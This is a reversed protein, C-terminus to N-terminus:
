PAATVALESLIILTGNFAAHLGIPAWISGRRVFLWGLALAVPLRSGFGVVALAVGESFSNATIGIVHVVAFFLAARVIGARAGATRTWATTAVGRFLVEEGLPAVIAGAILHLVLGSAEGTPPLPGEPAAGLLTVLLATLLLSVLIVPGAFVAGWVMDAAIGTPRFGMERWTLAGTGVVLLAVLAIVAGNQITVLLLDAVPRVADIGAAALPLGVAIALLNSVAISAAFLLVPSPGTYGAVGRAKREIAQSGAGAVLGISLLALGVALIAIGVGGAAGAGWGVFTVGLGLLSALWGLVFLGPAARGEITFTRSGLRAPPSGPPPDGGPRAADEAGDPAPSRDVVEGNAGDPTPSTM